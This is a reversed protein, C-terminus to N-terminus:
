APYAETGLAHNVNRLASVIGRKNKLYLSAAEKRKGWLFSSNESFKFMVKSGGGGGGIKPLYLANKSFSWVEVHPFYAIFSLFWPDSDGLHVWIPAM